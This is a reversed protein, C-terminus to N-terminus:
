GCLTNEALLWILGGRLGLSKNKLFTCVKILNVLKRHKRAYQGEIVLIIEIFVESLQEYCILYSRFISNNIQSSCIIM